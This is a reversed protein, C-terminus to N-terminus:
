REVGPAPLCSWLAAALLGVDGGPHAEDACGKAGGADERCGRGQEAGGAGAPLLVSPKPLCGM